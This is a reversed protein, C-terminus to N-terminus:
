VYFTPIPKSFDLRRVKSKVYNKIQLCHMQFITLLSYNKNKYRIKNDFEREFWNLLIKIGKYKVEIVGNNM